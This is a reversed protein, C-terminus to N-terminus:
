EAARKSTKKAPPAAPAAEKNAAAARAARDKMRQNTRKRKQLNGRAKEGNIRSM